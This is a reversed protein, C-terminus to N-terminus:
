LEALIKWREVLRELSYAANAPSTSPLQLLNVGAPRECLRSFLRAATAGTFVITHIEAAAFLPSFDNPTVNRISSDSSGDIECSHVVDWLAIARSLLLEKKEGVTQPVSVGFVAGLVRWFRNQPHAYFFEEERSKASPFSGLVLVRSHADFVPPISHLLM